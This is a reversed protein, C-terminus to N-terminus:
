DELQAVRRKKREEILQNIKEQDTARQSIIETQSYEGIIDTADVLTEETNIWGLAKAALMLIQATPLNTQTQIKTVVEEAIIPQNEDDVGVPVDKTVVTKREAEVPNVQQVLSKILGEAISIKAENMSLKLLQTRADQAEKYINSLEEFSRVYRYFRERTIGEEEMLKELNTGQGMGYRVCVRNIRFAVRAYEDTEEMVILGGDDAEKVPINDNENYKVIAMKAIDMAAQKEKELGYRGIWELFANYGLDEEKCLQKWTKTTSAYKKIIRRAKNKKQQDSLFTTALRQKNIRKKEEEKLTRKHKGM